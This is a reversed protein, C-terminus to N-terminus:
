NSKLNIRRWEKVNDVTFEQFNNANRWQDSEVGPKECNNLLFQMFNLWESCQSVVSIHEFASQSMESSLPQTRLFHKKNHWAFSHDLQVWEAMGAASISIM